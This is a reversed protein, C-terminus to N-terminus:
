STLLARGTSNDEKSHRDDRLDHSGQAQHDQDREQLVCIFSRYLKWVTPKGETTISGVFLCGDVHRRHAGRDLSADKVRGDLGKVM